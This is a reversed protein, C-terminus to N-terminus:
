KSKKIGENFFREKKLSNLWKEATAYYNDLTFEVEGKENPTITNEIPAQRTKLFTKLWKEANDIDALTQYYIAAIDYLLKHNERDYRYLDRLTNIQNQPQNAMKYCDAMGKYLHILASDKPITLNIAEKMYKIGDAKWSTKACSRALFYLLSINNPDREKAKELIDHAEYYRDIAYYSVGLYYLTQFSSDKRQILGSYRQIAMPYNESLCYAFANQRNVTINTTDKERYKETAEIAYEYLKTANYLSGLKAAALYDTPYKDQIVHYCGIAADIQDKMNELSQAQLHLVALSSDKEALLSSETFAETYQQMNNLLTMYQLRVYKNNPHHDISRIYYSLADNYKSLRKCCDASEILAQQNVSDNQLISQYTKFAEEINGLEKQAKGKLLLLKSTPKEKQILTIVTEYDFQSMAQQIAEINQAKITILFVLFTCFFILRKM